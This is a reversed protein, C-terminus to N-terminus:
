YLSNENIKEVHLRNNVMFKNKRVSCDVRVKVTFNQPGYSFIYSSSSRFKPTVIVPVKMVVDGGGVRGHFGRLKHSVVHNDYRM